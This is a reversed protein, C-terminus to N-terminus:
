YADLQPPLLASVTRTAIKWGDATRIYEDDNMAVTHVRSGDHTHGDQWLYNTGTARDDGHFDIVFNGFLHIQDAMVEQNHGFFERIADTGVYRELGVPEADFTADATFGIMVEEIDFRDLGRAYVASLRQIALLDNTHDSTSM